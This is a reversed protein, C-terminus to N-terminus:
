RRRWRVRTAMPSVEVHHGSSSTTSCTASRPMVMECGPLINKGARPLALEVGDVVGDDDAFRQHPRHRISRHRYLNELPVAPVDNKWFRMGSEAGSQSVVVVTVM